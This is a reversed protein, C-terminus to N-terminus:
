TGPCCLHRVHPHSPLAPQTQRAATTAGDRLQVDASVCQCILDADRVGAKLAEVLELCNCCAWACMCAACVKALMDGVAIGLFIRGLILMVYNEAAALLIAGIEFMVGSAFM